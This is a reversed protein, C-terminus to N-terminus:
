TFINKNIRPYFSKKAPKLFQSSHRIYRREGGTM